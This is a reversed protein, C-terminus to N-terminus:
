AGAGGDLNYEMIFRSADEILNLLAVVTKQLHSLRAVKKVIKVFPLISSLGEVLREVTEDCQEQQELKQM